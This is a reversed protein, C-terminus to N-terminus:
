TSQYFYNPIPRINSIKFDTRICITLTGIVRESWKFYSRQPSSLLQRICNDEKGCREKFQKALGKRNDKKVFGHKM